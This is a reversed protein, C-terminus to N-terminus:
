QVEIVLEALHPVVVRVFNRRGILNNADPDHSEALRSVQDQNQALELVLDFKEDEELVAQVVERPSPGEEFDKLLRLEAKVRGRIIEAGM